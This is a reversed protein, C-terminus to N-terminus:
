APHVLAARAQLSVDSSENTTTNFSLHPLSSFSFRVIKLKALRHFNLHSRFADFRYLTFLIADRNPVHEAEDQM